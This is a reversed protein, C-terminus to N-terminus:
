KGAEPPQNQGKQVMAAAIHRPDDPGGRGADTGVGRQLAPGVADGRVRAGARDLPFGGAAPQVGARVDPTHQAGGEAVGAGPLAPEAGGDGERLLRGRGAGKRRKDVSNRVTEASVNQMNRVFERRQEGPVGCTLAILSCKARNQLSKLQRENERLIGQMEAANKELWPSVLVTKDFLDPRRCVLAYGLQAGLSFGVLGVKRGLGGVCEELEALAEDTQFTRDTHRGFGMIHPVVIHYRDALCYQRGFAFTFFAGHLMVVVRDNEQGFEECYM